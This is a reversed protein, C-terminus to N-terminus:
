QSSSVMYEVAAVFDDASCDMCTGKPPMAGKGNTVSAVLADMGTAIRPAWAAKDGLKPAGAAGSAHCAMCKSNYVDAGGAQAQMAATMVMLSGAIVAIQFKKM